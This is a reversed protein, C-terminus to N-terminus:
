ALLLYSKIYAKFLDRKYAQPSTPGPPLLPGTDLHSLTAAQSVVTSTPRTSILGITPNPCGGFPAERLRDGGETPM